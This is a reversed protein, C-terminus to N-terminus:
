YYDRESEEMRDLIDDIEKQFREDIMEAFQNRFIWCMSTGTKDMDFFDCMYRHFANWLRESEGIEDFFEIIRVGNDKIFRFRAEDQNLERWYQQEDLIGMEHAYRDAAWTNVDPYTM